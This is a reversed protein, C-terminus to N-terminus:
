VRANMLVTGIVNATGLREKARRLDVTRTRGAMAVMLVNETVDAVVNVDASGEICSCDVVVHAYSAALWDSMGLRLARPNLVGYRTAAPDLSLVHLNDFYAAVVRWPLNSGDKHAALQRAFCEPPVFGLNEAIRPARLNGEVLLVRERSEEALAMALNLSCTTKGEQARASAVALTRPNGLSKLRYRLIRFASAVAGDPRQVFELGSRSNPPQKHTAVVEVAAVGSAGESPSTAAGPEANVRPRPEFEREPM